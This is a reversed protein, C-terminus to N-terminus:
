IAFSQTEDTQKQEAERAAAAAAREAQCGPCDCINVLTSSGIVALQETPSKAVFDQIKKALTAEDVANLPLPQLPQGMVLKEVMALFDFFEVPPPTAQFPVIEGKAKKKKSM